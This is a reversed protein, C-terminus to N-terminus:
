TYRRCRSALIHLYLDTTSVHTWSAHIFLLDRLVFFSIAWKMWDFRMIRWERVTVFCFRYLFTVSCFLSTFFSCLLVFCFLRFRIRDNAETKQHKTRVRPVHRDTLRAAENRDAEAAGRSEARAQELKLKMRDLTANKEELLRKMSAVQPADHRSCLLFFVHSFWM